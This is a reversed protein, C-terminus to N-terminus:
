TLQTSKCFFYGSLKWPFKTALVTLFGLFNASVSMKLHWICIHWCSIASIMVSCSYMSSDLQPAELLQLKLYGFSLQTWFGLWDKWHKKIKNNHVLNERATCCLVFWIKKCSDYFQFLFWFHVKASIALISKRKFTHISMSEIIAKRNGVWVTLCSSSYHKYIFIWLPPYPELPLAYSKSEEPWLNM